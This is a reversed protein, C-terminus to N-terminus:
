SVTYDSNVIVLYIEEQKRELISPRQMKFIEGVMLKQFKYYPIPILGSEAISDLFTHM